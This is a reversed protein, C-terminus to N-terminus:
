NAWSGDAETRQRYRSRVPTGEGERAQVLAVRLSALPRVCHYYAQWWQLHAQLHPTQLATAWTRRALAALWSPDDSERARYLGHQGTWYIGAGTLSAYVSATDGVPDCTQSAAAQAASLEKQSPWVDSWSGCAMPESDAEEV